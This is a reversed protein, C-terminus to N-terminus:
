SLLNLTIVGASTAPTTTFDAGYELGASPIVTITIPVNTSSAHTLNLVATKSAEAESFGQETAEFQVLNDPLPADKKRCAMFVIGMIGVVALGRLWTLKM